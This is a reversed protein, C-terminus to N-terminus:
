YHKNISISFIRNLTESRPEHILLLGYISNVLVSNSRKSSWQQWQFTTSIEWQRDIDYGYSISGQWGSGDKLPITTSDIGEFDLEMKSSTHWLQELGFKLHHPGSARQHEYGLRLTHWHYLEYLGLVNGKSLIDRVWFNRSYGATLLHREPTIPISVSLGFDYMETRTKTTHPVGAQTQGDYDILASYGTFSLEFKNGDLQQHFSLGIGPLVGTERDLENGSESYEVYTFNKGLLSTQISTEAIAYHASFLAMAIFIINLQRM